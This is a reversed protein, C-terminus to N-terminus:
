IEGKTVAELTAAIEAQSLGYDKAAVQASIYGRALDRLVSAKDRESAPGYGAGGPFAMM